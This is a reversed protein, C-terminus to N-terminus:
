SEDAKTEILALSKARKLIIELEEQNLGEAHIIQGDVTTIIVKRSNRYKLFAVIVTSLAGWIYPSLLVEIVGPAAMPVASCQERMTYKLDHENLLALAPGFSAKFVHVPLSEM